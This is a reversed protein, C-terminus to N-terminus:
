IAAAKLFSLRFLIHGNRTTDRKKHVLFLPEIRFQPPSPFHVELMETKQLPTKSGWVLAMFEAKWSPDNPHVELVFPPIGVKHASLVSKRISYFWWQYTKHHLYSPPTPSFGHATAGQNWEQIFSVVTLFPAWSGMQDRQPDSSCRCALIVM